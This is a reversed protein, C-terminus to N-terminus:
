RPGDEEPLLEFASRGLREEARYGLMKEMAPSEYVIRGGDDLVLILDSANEILSRFHAESDRLADDARRRATVDVLTGVAGLLREQGDRWPFSHDALWRGEGSKTKVLYDAWSEGREQLERAWAKQDRSFPSASAPGSEAVLKAFGME